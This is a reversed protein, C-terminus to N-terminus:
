SDDNGDKYEKVGKIDGSIWARFTPSINIIIGVIIFALIFIITKEM